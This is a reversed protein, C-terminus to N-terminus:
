TERVRRLWWWDGTDARALKVREGADGADDDTWKAPADNLFAVGVYELSMTVLVFIRLAKKQMTCKNVDYSRICHPLVVMIFESGGVTLGSM